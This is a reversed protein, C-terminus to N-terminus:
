GGPDPVVLARARQLPTSRDLAPTVVCVTRRSVAGNQREPVRRNRKCGLTKGARRAQHAVAVAVASDQLAAQDPAPAVVMTAEWASWTLGRAQKAVSAALFERIHRDRYIM